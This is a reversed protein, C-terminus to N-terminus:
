LGNMRLVDKVQNFVLGMYGCAGYPDFLADTKWRHFTARLVQQM